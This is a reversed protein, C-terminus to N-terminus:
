NESKLKKFVGVAFIPILWSMVSVTAACGGGNDDM